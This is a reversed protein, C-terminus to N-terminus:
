LLSIKCELNINTKSVLLLKKEHIKQELLVCFLLHVPFYGGLNPLWSKKSVIATQLKLFGRERCFTLVEGQMWGWGM